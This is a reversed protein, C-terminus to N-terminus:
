PYATWLRPANSDPVSRKSSVIVFDIGNNSVEVDANSVLRHFFSGGGALCGDVVKLSQLIIPNTFDIRNWCRRNPNPNTAVTCNWLNDIGIDTTSSYVNDFAGAITAPSESASSSLTMNSRWTGTNALDNVIIESITLFGDNPALTGLYVIRISKINKTAKFLNTELM